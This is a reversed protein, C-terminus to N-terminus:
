IKLAFTLFYEGQVITQQGHESEPNDISELLSHGKEQLAERVIIFAKPHQISLLHTLLAQCQSKPTLYEQSIREWMDSTIVKEQILRDTLLTPPVESMFRSFNNRIRRKIEDNTLVGVIVNLFDAILM